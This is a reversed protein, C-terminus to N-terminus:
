WMDQIMMMMGEKSLGLGNNNNTHFLLYRWLNARVMIAARDDENTNGDYTMMSNTLIMGIILIIIIVREINNISVM